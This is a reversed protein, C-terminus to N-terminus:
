EFFLIYISSEIHPKLLFQLLIATQVVREKNGLGILQSFFHVM